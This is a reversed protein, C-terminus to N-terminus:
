YKWIKHMWFWQEPYERIVSELFSTHRQTIEKIKEEDSEPLNELSILKIIAKYKYNPQRIGLGYIIPAGTKIALQAPGSHLATQKGFFNVRLGSSDGRQDAVIAAVRKEKLEKYIQRISPGLLVVKNNFKERMENLWKSVLGNRQDKVIVSFPIKVQAAISLALYEWNGFHGSLLIMGKNENFTNILIKNNDSIVMKTLDEETLSPLYLIEILTIVFNRYSEFAIKYVRDNDYEPFAIKLNELVTAKRIPVIYFFLAAFLYSLRRSLEIGLLRVLGSFALFLFYEVKNQM